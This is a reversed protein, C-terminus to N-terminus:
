KGRQYKIVEGTSKDIFVWLDGGKVSGKPGLYVSQYDKDKLEPYEKEPTTPLDKDWKKNKVNYTSVGIRKLHETINKNNEDYVINMEDTKYGLEKAKSIAIQIIQEKTLKDDQSFVVSSAFCLIIVLKWLFLRKSVAGGKKQIRGWFL